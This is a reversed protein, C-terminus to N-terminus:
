TRDYHTELLQKLNYAVAKYKLETTIPETYDDYTTLNHDYYQAKVTIRYCGARELSETYVQYSYTSKQHM